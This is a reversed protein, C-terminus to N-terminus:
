FDGLGKKGLPLRSRKGGPSYMEGPRGESIRAMIESVKASSPELGLLYGVDSDDLDIRKGLEVLLEEDKRVTASLLSLTSEKICKKSTHSYAALKGAVADRAIRPGKARSMVIYQGPFRYKLHELQSKQTRSLAVGGTMLEKAYAWLGYHQLIRTRGLYVDAKSVADFALAMEETSRMEMPINEEIWLILEDPTSDVEFTADRAERVGKARFMAHMAVELEREQNRKGLVGSHALELESRGEVMMQLDNIAARLDGEANEAIKDLVSLPSPIGERDLIVRLVKVVEPKSLRAFVAKDALTRLAPSKHTFERYDNVILVIPQGSNRITEVIAKAGGRDERGFLNDAEDLIILKRKGFSSSLFDGAASFTQNASGVGAVGEISAANRQDSANMEIHDWGMDDALALAASTKGTGPEGLLVIAKTRPVGSQWSEAWKKIKRLAAENGVVAGM